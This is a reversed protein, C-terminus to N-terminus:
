ASPENESATAGPTWETTTLLPPKWPACFSLTTTAGPLVSLRVIASLSVFKLESRTIPRELVDYLRAGNLMESDATLETGAWSIVWRWFGFRVSVSAVTGPTIASRVKEDVGFVSKATRPEGKCVRTVISPWGILEPM